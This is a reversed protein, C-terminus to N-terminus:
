VHTSELLLTLTFNPKKEPRGYSTAFSTPLMKM